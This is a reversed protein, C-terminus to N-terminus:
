DRAGTPALLSGPLSRLGAWVLDTLRLALREGEAVELVSGSTHVWRRSTAEALGVIAYGLLSRHDSAIDAAIFGGIAAAISAEVEEVAAAFEEDQRAGGGFLLGFADTHEAVFTFYAVFGARVRGQPEPEARAADVLAALLEDGVTVILERYLESKSPFHQYLVPKTVGAREAIDDMSAGHYTATGFIQLAM